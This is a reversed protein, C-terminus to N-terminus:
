NRREVTVTVRYRKGEDAGVSKAAQAIAKAPDITELTLNLLETSEQDKDSPLTAPQMPIPKQEYWFPAYPGPMGPTDPIKAPTANVSYLGQRAEMASVTIVHLGLGVVGLGVGVFMLNHFSRSTAVQDLAHVVRRVLGRLGEESVNM